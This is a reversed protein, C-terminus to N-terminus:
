LRIVGGTSGELVCKRTVPCCFTKRTNSDVETKDFAYAVKGFAFGTESFAPECSAMTKKAFGVNMLEKVVANPM